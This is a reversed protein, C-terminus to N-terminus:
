HRVIYNYPPHATIKIKSAMKVNLHERRPFRALDRMIAWTPASISLEPVSLQLKMPKYRNPRFAELNHEPSHYKFGLTDYSSATCEMYQASFMAFCYSGLDSFDEKILVGRTSIGCPIRAM